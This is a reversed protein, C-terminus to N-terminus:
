VTKSRFFSWFLTFFKFIIPPYPHYYHFFYVLFLFCVFDLTDNRYSFNAKINGIISTARKFLYKSPILRIWASNWVFRFLLKQKYAVTSAKFARDIPLQRIWDPQNEVVKLQIVRKRILMNVSLRSCTRTFGAPSVSCPLLNECALCNLLRLKHGM